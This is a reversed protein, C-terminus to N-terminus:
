LTGDETLREGDDRKTAASLAQKMMRRLSVSTKHDKVRIRCWTPRKLFESDGPPRSDSNTAGGNM